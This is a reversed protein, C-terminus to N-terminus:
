KNVYPRKVKRKRLAKEVVSDLIPFALPAHFHLYKSCFSNRHVATRRKVECNGNIFKIILDNLLNHAEIVAGLSSPSVRGCIRAAEIKKDLDTGNCVIFQALRDYFKDITVARNPPASYARGILCIKGSVAAPNEHLPQDCCMRYLINNM